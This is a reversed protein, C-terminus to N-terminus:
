QKGASPPVATAPKPQRPEMILIGRGKGVKSEGGADNHAAFTEKRSDYTIFASDIENIVKKGELQKIKADAFLKVLQLSDDYEIRQAQGEVWLDPGGDRKQRFTAVGGPSATLTVTQNGEADEKVVAKDAKMVLTGRTFVVNGTMIKTQTLDDVELTTWDITAKKTSDAREAWAAPLALLMLALLLPLKM